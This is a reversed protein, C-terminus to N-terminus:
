HAGARRADAGVAAAVAVNFYLLANLERQPIQRFHLLATSLGLSNASNSAQVYVLLLAYIGM